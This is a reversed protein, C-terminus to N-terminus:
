CPSPVNRASLPRERARAKMVRERRERLIQHILSRRTALQTLSREVTAGSHTEFKARVSLAEIRASLESVAAKKEAWKCRHTRIWNRRELATARAGGPTFRDAGGAGAGGGGGGGPPERVPRYRFRPRLKM